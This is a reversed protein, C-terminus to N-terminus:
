LDRGPARRATNQVRGGRRAVDAPQGVAARWPPPELVEVAFGLSRGHQRLLRGLAASPNAGRACVSASGGLQAVWAEGPRREPSFEVRVRKLVNM